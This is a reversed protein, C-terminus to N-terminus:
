LMVIVVLMLPGNIPGNKDAILNYGAMLHRLLCSTFRLFYWSDQAAVASQQWALWDPSYLHLKATRKTKKKKPIFRKQHNKCLRNLMDWPDAWIASVEQEEEGKPQAALVATEEEEDGQLMSDDYTFDLEGMDDEPRFLTLVLYLSYSRRLHALPQLAAQSESQM